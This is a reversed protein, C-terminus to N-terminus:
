LLTKAKKIPVRKSSALLKPKAKVPKPKPKKKRNGVDNLIPAAKRKITKKVESKIADTLQQKTSNLNNKLSEKVDKGQAIDNTTNLVGSIAAKGAKHALRQASKSKVASMFNSSASKAARSIWPVVYRSAWDGLVGFVGSGKQIYPGTHYPIFTNASNIYPM